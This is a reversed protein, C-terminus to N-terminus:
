PEHIVNPKSGRQIELALALLEEVEKMTPAEVELEGVKIRVKRGSRGHLWGAIGAILPPGITGVLKITFSGLYPALIPESTWSERVEMTYSVELGHSNLSQEFRQLEAQYAPSKLPPDDSAPIFTLDLEPADM